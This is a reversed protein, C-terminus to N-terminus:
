MLRQEDAQEIKVQIALDKLPRLAKTWVDNCIFIIPRKLEFLDLNTKKKKSKTITVKSERPSNDADSDDRVM